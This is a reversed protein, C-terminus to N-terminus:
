FLVLLGLGLLVLAASSLGLYTMNGGSVPTTPTIAKTPSATPGVTPTLTATVTPTASGTAEGLVREGAKAITFTRVKTLTNGNPDKTQLVLQHSGPALGQPLTIQWVGHSDAKTQVSTTSKDENVSITLTNGPIAKGKILPNGAPITANEKPFIIEIASGGNDSSVASLVDNKQLLNYDKGITLTEAIPSLSSLTATINSNHGEEDLMQIKVVDTKSLTKLQQTKNDIIYNLPILWEGSNKSLASLSYTNNVSLIIVANELPQGRPNLVKGYAPQLNNVAIKNSITTFTFPKDSDKGILSNDVVFKFFYRSNEKLNQLVIYHNVYAVKAGKADKQDLAINDLQNENTGYVIWGAKKQDTQWFITTQNPFVNTIEIRSIKKLSARSFNSTNSFFKTIFFITLGIFVLSFITPIKIENKNAYLQTYNM